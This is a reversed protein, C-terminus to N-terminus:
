ADPRNILHVILEGFTMGLRKCLDDARAATAPDLMAQRKVYGAAKRDAEWAARRQSPTMTDPKREPPMLADM